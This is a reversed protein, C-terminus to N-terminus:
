EPDKRNSSQPTEGILAVLFVAAFQARSSVGSKAYIRAFQTRITGAAARRIKGIQDLGQGQLSLLAVDREAPTLKWLEFQRAAVHAFAQRLVEQGPALADSRRLVRRMERASLTLGILLAAALVGLALTPWGDPGQGKLGQHLGQMALVGLALVQLGLAVAPVAARSPLSLSPFRFLPL